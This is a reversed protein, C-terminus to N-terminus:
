EAHYGAGYCLVQAVVLDLSRREQVLVKDELLSADEPVIHSEPLGHLHDGEEGSSKSFGPVLPVPLPHAFHPSCM